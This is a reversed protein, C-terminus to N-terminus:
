GGDPVTSRDITVCHEKTVGSAFYNYATLTGGVPTYSSLGRLSAGLPVSLHASASNGAAITM